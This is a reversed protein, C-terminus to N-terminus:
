VFVFCVARVVDTCRKPLIALLIKIEGTASNKDCWFAWGYSSQTVADLDRRTVIEASHTAIKGGKWRYIGM